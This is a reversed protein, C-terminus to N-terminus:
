KLLEPNKHINGIVYFSDNEALSDIMANESGDKGVFTVGYYPCIKVCCAGVGDLMVIDDVHMPNSSTDYANTFQMWKIDDFDVPAGSSEAICLLQKLSNVPMMIKSSERWARFKIAIM